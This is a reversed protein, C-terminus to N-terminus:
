DKLNVRAEVVGHLHGSPFSSSLHVNEASKGETRQAGEGSLQTPGLYIESPPM